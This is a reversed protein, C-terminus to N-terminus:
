ICIFIMGLVQGDPIEPPFYQRLESLIQLDASSYQRGLDM